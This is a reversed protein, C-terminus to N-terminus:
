KGDGGQPRLSELGRRLLSLAESPRPALLEFSGIGLMLKAQLVLTITVAFAALLATLAAGMLEFRGVLTLGASVAVVAGVVDARMGAVPQAFGRFGEVLVANLAMLSSAIILILAAPVAGSFADGFLWPLLVPTIPIMAAAVALVILVSFRVSITLARQKDSAAPLAALGPLVVAGIAGVLPHAIGGWGVAVAYNGLASSSLVAAVMVQDLRSSLIQPVVGVVTPLGFALLSRATSRDFAVPGSVRMRAIVLVVGGFVFSGVLYSFALYSAQGTGLAIGALLVTLWILGPAVRLSNWLTFAGLGRFAQHPIGTVAYLLLYLLYIAAASTVQESYGALVGAAIIQGVIIFLVASAFATSLATTITVSARGPDRAAYYTVAEGLGLLALGSLLTPLLQIAALEGRGEPGLVRAALVGTVIGLLGLVVNTVLTAAAGRFIRIEGARQSQM